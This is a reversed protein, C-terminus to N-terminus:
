EAAALDDLRKRAKQVAGVSTHVSNAIQGDTRDPTRRVEFEIITSSRLRARESRTLDSANVAADGALERQCHLCVLGQPNEIWNLPLERQAGSGNWRSEVLCNGCTWSQPAQPEIVPM